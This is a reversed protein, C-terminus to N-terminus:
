TLLGYITVKSWLCKPSMYSRSQRLSSFHWQLRNQSCTAELINILDMCVFCILVSKLSFSAWLRTCPTSTSITLSRFGTVALEALFDYFDIFYAICSAVVTRHGKNIYKCCLLLLLLLLFFTNVNIYHNLVLRPTSMMNSPIKQKSKSSRYISPWLEKRLRLLKLCM